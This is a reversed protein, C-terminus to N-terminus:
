LLQVSFCLTLSVGNQLSEEYKKQLKIIDGELMSKLDTAAGLKEEADLIETSM